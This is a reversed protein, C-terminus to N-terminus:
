CLSDYYERFLEMQEPLDAGVARNHRAVIAAITARRQDVLGLIDGPTLEMKRKRRHSFGFFAAFIPHIVYDFERVDTQEQLKSAPYRLLALHMIGGVLLEQVRRQSMAEGPAAGLVFQSVEPAHGFPEEALVQFVRGLGLLFRALKAGNLSLGELERLNRQGAAQAVKTQLAPDVAVLPGRGAEFHQDLARDVLELLYRINSAAMVCFVRWGAYYKRIGRKKKRISFLYAHKYNDYHEAWKDPERLIQRLKATLTMGEARARGSAAFVELGSAGAVWDQLRQHDAANETLEEAVSAILRDVGLEQAEREPSLEPLLVEIPPVTVDDGLVQHLRQTCVAAAFRTFRPRLENSINILRYDAPHTLQEADNLTTRERFGLERVGIKFSYLEGCHKVLTNLVRQQANDLNEYEDILFFFPKEIFQPLTRVERMLTDVPVGQMSLVLGARNDAVNNVTAEFHLKSTQVLQALEDLSAVEGLHLTVGVARLGSPRLGPADPNANRYWQLLGIVLETLELNMYHAFMRVWVRSELEPGSFATVRNTNIRYYMGFYPWESTAGGHIKRLAGQGQYSLCRLATTKGTGRGGELFCPHSTTLHPFYSPETFLQFIRENLWEARYGSFLEALRSRYTALPEEHM